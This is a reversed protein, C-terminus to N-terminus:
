CSIMNIRLTGGYRAEQRDAETDGMMYLRCQNETAFDRHNPAIRTLRAHSCISKDKVHHNPLIDNCILLQSLPARSQRPEVLTRAHMDVKGARCVRRTLLLDNLVCIRMASVGMKAQEKPSGHERLCVAALPRTPPKEVAGTFRKV